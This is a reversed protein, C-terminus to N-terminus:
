CWRSEVRDWSSTRLDPKEKLLSPKFVKGTETRPLPV